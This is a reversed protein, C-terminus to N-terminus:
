SAWAAARMPRRRRRGDAGPARVAWLHDLPAAHSFKAAIETQTLTAYRLAMALTTHRLVRRVLELDGTRRLLATAAYHRLAHPGIPRDLGARRSLRHLIRKPAWPGLPQGDRTVFLFAQPRPDPHVALYSWLLSATADGFFTVGDRQGKGAVVRILRTNLDLDGIRLRRAEEKRLGSDVLLGVLARNRRGEFSQDCAALLRRVDEGEPVRPLTRPARVTMGATPDAHLRGTRACWRCFTCLTRYAQHVSISKIRARLATLYGEIVGSTVAELPVPGVARSFRELTGAYTRLTAATCGAAERSRLFAAISDALADLAQAPRM